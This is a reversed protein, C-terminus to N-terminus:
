EAGSRAGAALAKELDAEAQKSRGECLNIRGALAAIHGAELQDTADALAQSAKDLAERAAQPEQRALEIESAVRWASAELNRNGTEAALLVAREVEAKAKDLASGALLIEAQVWHIEALLDEAGIETAHVLSDAITRQATM